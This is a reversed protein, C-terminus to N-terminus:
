PSPVSLNGYEIAIFAGKLPRLIGLCIGVAIPLTVLLNIWVPPEFTIDLWLAFGLVFFGALLMVCIAPGDSPNAFAYSLGCKECAPKTNLFGRFLHGKGCRPCRCILGSLIRRTENPQQRM